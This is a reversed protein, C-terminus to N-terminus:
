KNLQNVQRIVNYLALAVGLMTFIIFYINKPNPYKGDLWGGFYSFAVIIIGMQVPINVLALWKNRPSNKNKGNDPTNDNM